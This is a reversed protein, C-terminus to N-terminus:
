GGKDLHDVYNEIGRTWEVCRFGTCMGMFDWLLVIYKSSGQCSNRCRAFTNGGDDIVVLGDQLMVTIYGMEGRVQGM